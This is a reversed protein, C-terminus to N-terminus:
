EEETEIKDTKGTFLDQRQHYYGLFFLGQNEPNLFAPLPTAELAETIEGVKRDFFGALGKKESDKRLKGMHQQSLSWLMPFINKPTAAASGFYKDRITSNIGPNAATQIREFVAFLRGLRYGTNTNEKDLSVSVEEHRCNRILFAKILSARLYNITQDSRITTLLAPLLNQPYPAGTFVARTFAGAILPSVKEDKEWLSGPENHSVTERLLTRISPYRRENEFSKVVELQQFHQFVNQLIEGVTSVHWFRVSLRSANPSLALLYFRVEPEKVAEQVRGGRLAELIARLDRLAGTDDAGSDAIDLDTEFLGAFLNEVESSRETWFVVMADGIRVKQRSGNRLLWNLATCYAFAAREGIPANYNQDKGYSTFADLNFSVLAAGSTQSGPVGKIAPHLRAIPQEEGSILCMGKKEGANESCYGAWRERIMPREHIFRREGDLRFVVNLGAMQDWKKLSLAQEPKWGELFRLVAKMGEDELDGAVSHQMERFAAFMRSAREPTGKADGGLVYGTNDWLFNAAIAVTRKVPEPVVLELPLERKGEKVRLDDEEVLNGERDLVLCFHIKQRSFGALPVGGNEPDAILRHYYCNLAQLIM